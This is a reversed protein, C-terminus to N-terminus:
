RAVQSLQQLMNDAATLVKTNMEYTRQAAIMDVMEEVVQVNSAETFGQKIKGLGNTGPDGEIPQGSAVTEQYLNDGLALLGAPNIFNALQLKGLQTPTSSGAQTATVTGDEGITISTADQPVTIGPQILLGQQNVLQGNPSLHLQGARTYASDGSDQQVELFGNGDIAVDFQQGTHQLNGATFVKESGVLRTGTGLQIGSPSIVNATQQGGPQQEVQYSLDSFILRDRKFGVTNVNALNNAIEQLKADQAQLGTKSIWM